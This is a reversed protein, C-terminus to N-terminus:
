IQATRAGFMPIDTHKSYPTLNEHMQKKLLKPTVYVITLYSKLHMQLIAPLM